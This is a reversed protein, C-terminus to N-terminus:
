NQNVNLKSKNLGHAEFLKNHNKDTNIADVDRSMDHHITQKHCQLTEKLMQPRKTSSTAGWHGEMFIQKSAWFEEPFNVANTEKLTRRENKWLQVSGVPFVGRGWLKGGPRHHRSEHTSRQRVSTQRQDGPFSETRCKHTKPFVFRFGQM